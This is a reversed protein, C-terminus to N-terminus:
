EDEDDAMEALRRRSLLIKRAGGVLLLIGLLVFMVPWRTVMVLWGYQLRMNAAFSAAFVGETEGTVHEFANAFSKQRRTEAALKGIVDPGHKKVLRDVAILSTGYARQALQTSSPFSGQLRSLDPVYGELVLTVTDVFRWEGGYHMAAGEHLWAPIPNGEAAQFLLAHVMEHLFVERVGRGVASLRSYDLGVVRGNGLAIGVGWEPLRGGFVRHFTPTDLVLCRVSDTSATPGVLEALLNEGEALWIQNCEEAVAWGAPSEAEFYVVPPAATVLMPACTAIVWVLFLSRLM